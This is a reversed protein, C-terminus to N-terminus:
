GPPARISRKIQYLEGYKNWFYDMLDQVNIKKKCTKTIIEQALYMSGHRHIHQQLMVARVSVLQNDLDCEKNLTNYIMASYITGLAYTPFYGILGDCWHVDQLVGEADSAPTVNLYERYKANWLRPLEEVKIKGEILARELEYRIIIHLCYTVEDCEIRIM